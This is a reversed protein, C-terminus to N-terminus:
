KPGTETWTYLGPGTETWIHWGKKTWEASTHSTKSKGVEKDNAWVPAGTTRIYVVMCQLNEMPRNTKKRVLTDAPRTEARLNQHNQGDQLFHEVTMPSTGCCGASSEGTHFKTFMHRRLRSHGTRLQVITVQDERSLQCFSDRSNFDPHQLLWKRRKKEM